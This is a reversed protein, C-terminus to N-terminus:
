SRIDWESILIRVEAEEGKLRHMFIKRPLWMAGVQQYQRFEIHWGDQQMVHLQKNELWSILQYHKNPIPTALLWYRLGSIPLQWGQLQQLLIEATAAQMQRGDSSRLVVGGPQSSIEISGAGLPANIQINFDGKKQQHWILSAQGGDNQIQIALRGKLNWSKIQYRADRQASWVDSPSSDYNIKLPTTCSSVFMLILLLLVVPM